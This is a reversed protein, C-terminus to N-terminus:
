RCAELQELLEEILLQDDNWAGLHVVTISSPAGSREVMSPIEHESHISEASINVPSVLIKKVGGALLGQVATKIDPQKYEMYALAINQEKYGDAMLMERTELRFDNEQVVLRGARGTAGAVVVTKEDAIRTERRITKAYGEYDWLSQKIKNLHPLAQQAWWKICRACCRV